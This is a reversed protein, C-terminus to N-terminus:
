RHSPGDGAANKGETENGDRDLEIGDDFVVINAKMQEVFLAARAHAILDKTWDTFDHDLTVFRHAALLNCFPLVHPDFIGLQFREFGLRVAADIHPLENRDLFDVRDIELAAVIKCGVFSRILRVTQEGVGHSSQGSGV